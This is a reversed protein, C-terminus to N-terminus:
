SAGRKHEQHSRPQGEEVAAQDPPFVDETDQHLAEHAHRDHRNKPHYDPVADSKGSRFYATPEASIRHGVKQEFIDFGVRGKFRDGPHLKSEALLHEHDELHHERDNGWCQDDTRERLSHLEGRESNKDSQPRQQDVTWYRVPNPVTRGVRDESEPAEVRFVRHRFTSQIECTSRDNVDVSTDSGQDSAQDDAWAASERLLDIRGM